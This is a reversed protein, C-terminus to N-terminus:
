QTASHGQRHLWGAGDEEEEEEKPVRSSGGALALSSPEGRWIAGVCPLWGREAVTSPSLHGPVGPDRLSIVGRCGFVPERQRGALSGKGAVTVNENGHCFSILQMKVIDGEMFSIPWAIPVARHLIKYDPSSSNAGCSM